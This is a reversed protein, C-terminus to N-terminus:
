IGREGNKSLSEIRNLLIEKDAEAKAIEEPSATGADILTQLDEVKRQLNVVLDENNSKLAKIVEKDAEHFVSPIEIDYQDLDVGTVGFVADRMSSTGENYKKATKYNEAQAFVLQAM